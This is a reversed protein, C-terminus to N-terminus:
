KSTDISYNFNLEFEGVNGKNIFLSYVIKVGNGSYILEKTETEIDLSGEPIIYTGKTSNNICFGLKILYDKKRELFVKEGLIITTMIGDDNFTIKDGNKIGKGEFTHIEDKTKLSYDINVKGM